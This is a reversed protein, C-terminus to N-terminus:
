QTLESYVKRRRRRRRRRRRLSDRYRLVLGSCSCGSRGVLGILAGLSELGALLAL